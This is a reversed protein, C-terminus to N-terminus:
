CGRRRLRDCPDIAPLAPVKADRVDWGERVSTAQHTELARLQRTQHHQFRVTLAAQPKFGFRDLPLNARRLSRQCVAPTSSGDSLNARQNSLM